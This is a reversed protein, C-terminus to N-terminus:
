EFSAVFCGNFDTLRPEGDAPVLFELEALGFWDLDALLASARERLNASVAVTRSRVRTGTGPPWTLPEAVQQVDTIIQAERDSVVPYVMKHGRIVNQM